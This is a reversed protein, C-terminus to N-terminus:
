IKLFIPLFKDIFRTKISNLLLNTLQLNRNQQTRHQETDKDWPDPGIKVNLASGLFIRAYYVSSDEGSNGIRIGKFGEVGRFLDCYECWNTGLEGMFNGEWKKIGNEGDTHIWGSSSHIGAYARHRVYGFTIQASKILTRLFSVCNARGAILCNRNEASEVDSNSAQNAGFLTNSTLLSRSCTKAVPKTVLNQLDEISIEEPFLGFQDLSEIMNKFITITEKRDKVNALDNKFSNILNQLSTDEETSLQVTYEGMNKIGFIELTYEVTDAKNIVMPKLEITVTTPNPSPHLTVEIWETSFGCKSVRIDLTTSEIGLSVDTFDAIGKLNTHCNFVGYNHNFWVLALPLDRGNSKSIVHVKLRIDNNTINESNIKQLKANAPFCACITLLAILITIIEMWKKKTKKNM